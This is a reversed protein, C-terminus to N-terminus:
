RAARQVCRSDRGSVARLPALEHDFDRDFFASVHGCWRRAFDDLKRQGVNMSKEEGGFFVFKEGAGDTRKMAVSQFVEEGVGRGDGCSAADGAGFVFEDREAVGDVDFDDGVSFDFAVVAGFRPSFWFWASGDRPEHSDAIFQSGIM